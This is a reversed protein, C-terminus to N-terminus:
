LAEKYARNKRLLRLPNWARPWALVTPGHTNRVQCGRIHRHLAQEASRRSPYPGQPRDGRKLYYWADDKEFIRSPKKNM